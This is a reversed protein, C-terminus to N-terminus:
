SYVIVYVGGKALVVFGRVPRPKPLRSFPNSGEVKQM